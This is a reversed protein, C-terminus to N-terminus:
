GGSIKGLLAAILLLTAMLLFFTPVIYTFVPSVARTHTRYLWRLLYAVRKGFLRRVMWPVPNPNEAQLRTAQVMVFMFAALGALLPPAVWLGVNFPGIIANVMVAVLAIGVAAASTAVFYRQQRYMRSLMEKLAFSPWEITEGSRRALEPSEKKIRALAREAEERNKLPFRESMALAVAIKKPNSELLWREVTRVIAAGNDPAYWLLLELVAGAKTADAIQEVGESVLEALDEDQHQAVFRRILDSTEHSADGALADFSDFIDQLAVLTAM